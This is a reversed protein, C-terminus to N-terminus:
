LHVYWLRLRMGNQLVSRDSDDIYEVSLLSGGAGKEPTLVGFEAEIIDANRHVFLPAM